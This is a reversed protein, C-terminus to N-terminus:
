RGRPAGSAQPPQGGTETLVVEVRRNLQRGQPTDNTAVPANEGYGRALIRSPDIGRSVLASRVADARRQSLDMNYDPNGTSDTYGDIEVSLDPHQKLVDALRDLNGTAGPVLTASDTKFLVNSLTLQIGRETQRAKLDSLQQRLQETEESRASLLTKAREAEANKIQDQSNRLRATEAALNAQQYAMYAQHTVVDRNDGNRWSADAQALAQRARELELPAQRNVVPDQNVQSVRARAQDLTQNDAPTSCAVLGLVGAAAAVARATHAVNSAEKIIAM